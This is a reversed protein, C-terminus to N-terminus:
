KNYKDSQRRHPDITQYDSGPDSKYQICDEGRGDKWCEHQQEQIYHHITLVHVLLPFLWITVKKM